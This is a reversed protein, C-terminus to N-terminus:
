KLVYNFFSVKQLIDFFVQMSESLNEKPIKDWTDTKQHLDPMSYDKNARLIFFTPIGELHFAYQDSDALFLDKVFSVNKIGMNKIMDEAYTNYSVFLKEGRGVCDININLFIDEIPVVPDEVFFEAGLIGKEEGNTVLFLINFPYNNGKEWIEKAIEMLVGVGSANDNAGPFYGDIDKGLHDIHASVVLTKKEKSKSPILFTLNQAYSSKKDYKIRYYAKLNKFKDMYFVIDKYADSSIYITPIVDEYPIVSKQLIMEAGNKPVKMIVGEAGWRVAYFVDRSLDGDILLFSGKLSEGEKKIYGEKEWNRSFKDRFDKGYMYSKLKKDGEKLIFVPTDKLVFIDVPFRQYIVKNFGIDELEDGLFYIARRNELTGAERGAYRKDSLERVIQLAYDGRVSSELPSFLILVFVLISVF